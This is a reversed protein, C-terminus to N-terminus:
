ANMPKAIAELAAVTMRPLFHGKIQELTAQAAEPGCQSRFWAVIADPSQGSALSGDLKVVIRNVLALVEPAPGTAVAAPFGTGPQGAGGGPPVFAAQTTPGPFSTAPPQMPAPVNPAPTDDDTNKGGRTGKLRKVFEQVEEISTFKLEM